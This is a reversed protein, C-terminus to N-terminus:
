GPSLFQFKLQGKDEWSPPMKQVGFDTATWERLEVWGGGKRDGHMDFWLYRVGFTHEHGRLMDLMTKSYLDSYTGCSDTIMLKLPSSACGLLKLFDKRIEDVRNYAWESEVGLLLNTGRWVTVDLCIEYERGSHCCRTGDRVLRAIGSKIRATWLATSGEGQPEPASELEAIIAEAIDRTEFPYSRYM